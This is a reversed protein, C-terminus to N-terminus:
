VEDAALRPAPVPTHQMFGAQDLYQWTTIGDHPTM